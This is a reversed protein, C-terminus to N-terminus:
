KTCWYTTGCAVGGVGFAAGEPSGGIGFRAHSMSVGNENGTVQGGFMVGAGGVVFAGKTIQTGSCLSGTGAGGSIGIEGQLPLGDILGVCQQTNVCYRGTTDLAFGVEVSGYGM